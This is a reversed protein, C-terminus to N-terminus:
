QQCRLFDPEQEGRDLRWRQGQSERRDQRLSRTQFRLLLGGADWRILDQITQLIAVDTEVQRARVQEEIRASLVKSFGSVLSVTIGPFIQEFARAASEYEAAPGAALLVLSKERKAAAYLDDVTQARAPSGPWMAALLAVVAAVARAAAVRLRGIM